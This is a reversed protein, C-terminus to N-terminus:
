SKAPAAQEPTVEAGPRARQIGNVIVLESGDLGKEIVQMGDVSQGVTVMRPEVVNKANVVLVYHGQQEVGIATEPVLLAQKIDVPSRLRVFMGALLRGSTNPFIGRTLLTGTQPDLGLDAYDLTGKHVYGKGDALALELKVTNEPNSRRGADNRNMLRLLERENLTFYAYVPDDQIITSLTTQQGGAGVLNNLDVQHRGMRGDFPAIVQTYGYNIKALDLQAKASDLNALSSDRSTQWKVVDTDPGAKEAFLKKARTLEVEAQNLSAKASDVQAQAQKVKAKYPEPEIVFLLQGKKVHQGDEFLIGQLFGEVRAMLNVSQVAQTNGTFEMYDVVDKKLPKAVSVKPPPPPVYANHRDCAALPALGTLLAALAMLRLVFPPM